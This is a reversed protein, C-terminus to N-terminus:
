AGARREEGLFSAESETQGASRYKDFPPHTGTQAHHRRSSAAGMETGSVPPRGIVGEIFHSLCHRM